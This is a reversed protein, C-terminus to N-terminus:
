LTPQSRAKLWQNRKWVTPTLEVWNPKERKFQPTAKLEKATVGAPLTGNDLCQQLENLATGCLKKPTLLVGSPTLRAYAVVQGEQKLEYNCGQRM